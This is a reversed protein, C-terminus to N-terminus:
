LAAAQADLAAAKAVREDHAAQQAEASLSGDMDYTLAGNALSRLHDAESRLGDVREEEAAAPYIRRWSVLQEEAHRRLEFYQETDEYQLRSAREFLATIAQRAQWEPAVARRQAVDYERESVIQLGSVSTGVKGFYRRDIQGWRKAKVNSAVADFVGDSKALEADIVYCSQCSVAGDPDVTARQLRMKIQDNRLVLYTQTESM